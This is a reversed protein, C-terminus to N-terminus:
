GVENFSYRDRNQQTILSSLPYRTGWALRSVQKTARTSIKEKNSRRINDTGITTTKNTPLSFHAGLIRTRNFYREPRGTEKDHKQQNIVGRDNTASTKFEVIALNTSNVFCVTFM